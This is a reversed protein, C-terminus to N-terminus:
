SRDGERDLARGIADISRVIRVAQQGVSARDTRPSPTDPTDGHAELATGIRLMTALLTAATELLARTTREPQPAPNTRGPTVGLRTAIAASKLRARLLVFATTRPNSGAHATDPVAHPLVIGLTSAIRASETEIQRLRVALDQAKPGRRLVADLASSCQKLTGLAADLPASPHLERARSNQQTIGLEGALATAGAEASMIARLAGTANAERPHIVPEPPAVFGFLGYARGIKESTEIAAVYVDSRTPTRRSHRRSARTTRM